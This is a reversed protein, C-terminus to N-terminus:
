GKTFTVLTEEIVREATFPQGFLRTAFGAVAQRRASPSASRDAVMTASTGIHILDPAAAHEKLRRILMAVDAGQRGRYTHLEDFVLFRLGGGARDLFRQDEPRVLIYEAMVYNTLMIQPPHQRLEAKKTESTEGTYKAFTVPFRKGTRREYTQKLQELAQLQSNVLANMPYVVLAAVRDHTDPRRLLDDIIPIFYTLSKGSGTGSTVVYSQRHRFLQLTEVQHKYLHYPEGSPTRFIRGAEEHLEGRSCLDDVTATRPYSPSVQLLFDPWLRAEDVLAQDVYARARDDAITFFSRVFDRYDTLVASHLDFISM